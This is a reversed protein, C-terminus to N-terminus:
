TAAQLIEGLSAARVHLRDLRTAVADWWAWFRRLDAADRVFPTHGPVLSPSHFSFTLLREGAAVVVEIAHLVEDVPMDEPTLSVRNALGLRALAGPGHPLPTAARHLWAGTRRLRGTFVTSFPLEILDNWRYASNGIDRYDPGGDAGYDYRARVSTDLRYGRERLFGITAPGLGYRGARFALPQRGFATTLAETLADIKAGELAPALNGAYSNAPSLAEDFPPTVWPHLQAGIATRGDALARRLVDVAAPDTAVPYDVMCTLPIGLAAFRLYAAPFAGMAATSPAARSFPASWDFEEEVDCFVAFRTGFADPWRILDVPRPPQPRFPRQGAGDTM